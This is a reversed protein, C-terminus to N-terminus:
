EGVFMKLADNELKRMNKAEEDTKDKNGILHLVGHIIVRRLEEDFTNEFLAANEEVRDISIIIDGSIRDGVVNDFTIIDTYTDHNLFRVNVDHVYEDNSFLYNIKGPIKGHRRIVRCIWDSVNKEDFLTNINEQYSFRIAM